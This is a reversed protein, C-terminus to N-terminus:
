NERVRGEGAVVVSNKDDDHAPSPKRRVSIWIIQM